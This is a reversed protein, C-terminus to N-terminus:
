VGKMRAASHLSAEQVPGPMDLSSEEQPVGPEDTVHITIVNRENKRTINKTFRLGVCQSM